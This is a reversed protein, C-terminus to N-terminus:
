NCCSRKLLAREASMLLTCTAHIAKGRHSAPTVPACVRLHITSFGNVIAGCAPSTMSIMGNRPFDTHSSLVNVSVPTNRVFWQSIHTIPHYDINFPVNTILNSWLIKRQASGLVGADKLPYIGSKASLVCACHSEDIWLSDKLASGGGLM